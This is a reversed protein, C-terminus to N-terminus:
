IRPSCAVFRAPASVQCRIKFAISRSCAFAGALPLLHM